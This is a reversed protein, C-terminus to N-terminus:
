KCCSTPKHDYCCPAVAVVVAAAVAAVAVAVAVAVAIAVAIAAILWTPPSQWRLMCDWGEFPLLM